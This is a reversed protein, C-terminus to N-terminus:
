RTGYVRDWEAPPMWKHRQSEQIHGVEETTVNMVMLRGDDEERLVEVLTKGDTLYEIKDAVKM